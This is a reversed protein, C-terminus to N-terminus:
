QVSASLGTPAAPATSSAGSGFSYAGIDWNATSSTPRPVLAKDMNLNSLGLSYLNSARQILPSTSQPKFSSDLAPNSSISNNDCLCLARWAVLSLYSNNVYFGGGQYWNNRDMSVITAGGSMTLFLGVNQCSNNMVKYNTGGLFFCQNAFAQSTSSGVITNNYFSENSHGSGSSSIYGYPPIHTSSSNTLVNNYVLTGTFTSGAPAELYILATNNQGIDGYFYNNFIQLGSIKSSGNVVFVHIYDHHFTDNVDDWNVMDHFTNGSIIMGSLQASSNGDGVAVGHDVNFLTNNSININSTVTSGPFPVFIGWHADDITNGSITNNSGGYVYLADANNGNTQCGKTDATSSHVCINSISLKKITINSSGTASVGRSGASNAMGTGNATNRIIGNSGGDVTVYDHNTINIAGNISWYPASLVAGPEFLVTILNGSTGGGQFTLATSGAAGAITGCLHVTDGPGIQSSGTGWNGSSNFFSISKANACSSADGAGAANQALYIDNARSLGGSLLAFFIMVAFKKM